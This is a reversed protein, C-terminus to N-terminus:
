PPLYYKRFRIRRSFGFRSRNGMACFCNNKRIYDSALSMCMGKKRACGMEAFLGWSGDDWKVWTVWVPELDRRIQLEKISLTM